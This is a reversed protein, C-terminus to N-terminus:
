MQMKRLQELYRAVHPQARRTQADELLRIARAYRQRGVEIQAQQVLAEVEYGSIRAARESYLLAREAQGSAEAITALLLLARGDLPNLQLAEQLLTEARGVHEQQWHLQGQLRLLAAREADSWAQMDVDALMAQAGDLDDLLLFGDIARVVREPSAPAGAFAAQYADLADVPQSAHLLLDGQLALMDADALGLRRATELSRIAQAHRELLLFANARLRWVDQNEPQLALVERTLSLAEQYREQMFLAQTLGTLAEYLDPQLLLANRFATEASVARGQMQLAHGLLVYLDADAQGDAVLEQYLGITGAADDRLLYIRGLNAKAARFRPLVAIAEEYSRQASTYEEAQFYFNGAAFAVAASRRTGTELMEAAAVVNTQGVAFAAQLLRRDAASVEPEFPPGSATALGGWFLWGVVM